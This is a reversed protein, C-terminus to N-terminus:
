REPNGTSNKSRVAAPSTGTYRRFVRSFYSADNYGLAESVESVTMDTQTLLRQAEVVKSRNIFSSLHEGTEVHYRNSLYSPSMGAADAVDKLSVPRDLSQQVYAIAKKVGPSLREGRDGTLPTDTPNRQQLVGRIRSLCKSLTDNDLSLKHLYDVAGARMARTAFEFQDHCSIIISASPEPPSADEAYILDIGEGDALEMDLVLLDIDAEKLITRAESLTGAEAVIEFGNEAWADFTKLGRRALPEDDLLLVRFM